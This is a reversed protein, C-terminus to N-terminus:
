RFGRFVWFLFLGIVIALTSYWIVGGLITKRRRIRDLPDPLSILGHYDCKLCGRGACGDCRVYHM